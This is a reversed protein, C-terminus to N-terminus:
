GKAPADPANPNKTLEYWSPNLHTREMTVYDLIAKADRDTIKGDGNVDACARAAEDTILSAGKTLNVKVHEDLVLKADVSDLKGDGNADGFVGSPKSARVFDFAQDFGPLAIHLNVLSTETKAITKAAENFCYYYQDVEENGMIVEAVEVTVDGTIKGGGKFVVEFTHDENVTLVPSDLEDKVAWTGAIDKVSPVVKKERILQHNNDIPESVPWMEALINLENKPFVTSADYSELLIGSDTYFNYYTKGEDDLELKVIGTYTRTGSGEEDRKGEEDIPYEFKVKASYDTCESFTYVGGTKNGLSTSFWNGELAKMSLGIVNEAQFAHYGYSESTADIRHLICVSGDDVGGILENCETKSVGKWPFLEMFTEDATMGRIVCRDTDSYELQVTGTRNSTGNFVFTGDAKIELSADSISLDRDFVFWKGALEEMTPVRYYYVSDTQAPRELTVVHLLKEMPDVPFGAILAGDDTYCNFFYNVKGGDTEMCELFARGTQETKKGNVTFERKFSVWPGRSEAFTILDDECFWAGTLASLGNDDRGPMTTFVRTYGNDMSVTATRSLEADGITITGQAETLETVPISGIKVGDAYLTFCKKMSGDKQKIDEVKIVGESTIAASSDTIIFAGNQNVLVQANSAIATWGGALAELLKSNEKMATEMATIYSYLVLCNAGDQGIPCCFRESPDDPLQCGFWVTGDAKYFHFWATKTNDPHEEYELKITGASEKQSDYDKYTYTGDEKVILQGSATAKSLDLDSFQIPEYVWVGAIDALTLAKSQSRVFHRAGDQGTYLETVNEEYYVSVGDRYEGDATFFMFWFGYTCNPYAEATVRVVGSVTEDASQLTYTGDDKVTLVAEAGETVENWTGTIKKLAASADFRVFTADSLDVIEIDETFKNRVTDGNKEAYLVVATQPQQDKESDDLEQTVTKREFSNWIKGDAKYFNYVGDELKVTGTFAKGSTDLVTFTGDANVSLMNNAYIMDDRVWEGAIAAISDEAQAARRFHSAGDQGTYFDNVTTEDGICVGTYFSGGENYFNFWFSYTGDPHEEAAALIMGTEGGRIFTGDKKITLEGIEEGKDNLEKWSGIYRPFIKSIECRVFSIEFGDSVRLGMSDLVFTGSAEKDNVVMVATGSYKPKGDADKESKEVTFKGSVILGDATKLICSGDENVIFYADTYNSSTGDMVSVWEGRLAALAESDATESVAAPPDAAFATQMVAPQVASILMSLAALYTLMKKTKM